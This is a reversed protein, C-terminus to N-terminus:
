HGDKVWGERDRKKRATQRKRGPTQGEADEGDTGAMVKREGVVRQQDGSLGGGGWPTLSGRGTTLTRCKFLENVKSVRTM